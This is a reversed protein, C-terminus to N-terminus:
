RTPPSRAPCGARHGAASNRHSDPASGFSCCSYPGATAALIRAASGERAVSRHISRAAATPRMSMSRGATRAARSVASIASTQEPPRDGSLDERLHGGVGAHPAIRVAFQRRGDDQTRVLLDVQQEAQGPAMEDLRLQRGQTVPQASEGRAPDVMGGPVVARSVPRQAVLDQVEGLVLELLPQGAPAGRLDHAGKALEPAVEGVPRTVQSVRQVAVELRRRDPRERTLLTHAPHARQDVLGPLRPVRRRGEGADLPREDFPPREARGLRERDQLGEGVRDAGRRFHDPQSGLLDVARGGPGGCLGQVSEVEEIAVARQRTPLPKDVQEGFVTSRVGKDM